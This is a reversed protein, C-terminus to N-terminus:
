APLCDPLPDPLEPWLRHLRQGEILVVYGPDDSWRLWVSAAGQGPQAQPTAASTCLAPKVSLEMQNKKHGAGDAVKWLAARQRLAAIRAQVQEDLRLMVRQGAPPMDAPWQEGPQLRAGSRMPWRERVVEGTAGRTLQVEIFLAEPPFQLGPPLLVAVRLQAPDFREFDFKRLKWLSTLPIQSCGSLMLVVSLLLVLAVALRPSMSKNVNM